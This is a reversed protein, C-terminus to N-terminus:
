NLKRRNQQIFEARNIHPSYQAFSIHALYHYYYRYNYIHNDGLATLLDNVINLLLTETSYGPVSQVSYFLHNSELRQSLQLPAIKEIVDSFFPLNSVPRYNKLNETYLSPRLPRTNELLPRVVASKFVSPFSGTLLSDNIFDLVAREGPNVKQASESKPIREVGPTVTTARLLGRDNQWFHLHCTVAFCAYAKCIHSQTFHCPAHNCPTCLVHASVAATELLM